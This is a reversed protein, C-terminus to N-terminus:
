VAEDDDDDDNAAAAAAWYVLTFRRCVLGNVSNSGGGCYVSTIILDFIFSLIRHYDVIQNVLSFLVVRNKTM